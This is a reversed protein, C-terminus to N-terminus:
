KIQLQQLFSISNSCLYETNHIWFKKALDSGSGLHNYRGFRVKELVDTIKAIKHCIIHYGLIWVTVLSTIGQSSQSLNHQLRSDPSHCVTHYGLIRSHCFIHYGLIRVTVFSTIGQSGSQSLHHSARLDPSHCIIHYGLIRVTVFSTIGLSGSKTLHHAVRPDPSHCPCFM